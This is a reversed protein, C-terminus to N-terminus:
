HAGGSPSSHPGVSHLPHHHHHLNHQNLSTSAGRPSANAKQQEALDASLFGTLSRESAAGMSSMLADETAGSGAEDDMGAHLIDEDEGIGVSRMMDDGGMGKQSLYSPLALNGGMSARMARRQEQERGASSSHCLHRQADASHTGYTARCA